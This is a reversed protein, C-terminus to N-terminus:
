CKPISKRKSNERASITADYSMGRPLVILAGLVRIGRWITRSLLRRNGINSGRASVSQQLTAPLMRNRTAWRAVAGLGPGATM